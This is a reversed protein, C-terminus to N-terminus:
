ITGSDVHLNQGTVSRTAAPYIITTPILDFGRAAELCERRIAKNAMSFIYRRDPGLSAIAEPLQGLRIQSDHELPETDGLVQIRRWDPHVQVTTEAIEVATCRGGFISISPPTM